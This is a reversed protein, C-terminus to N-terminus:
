IYDDERLLSALAVQYFHHCVRALFYGFAVRSHPSALVALCFSAIIHLRLRIVWRTVHESAEREWWIAWSDKMIYFWYKLVHADAPILAIMMLSDRRRFSEEIIRASCTFRASFPTSLNAHRIFLGLTINLRLWRWCELKDALAWTFSIGTFPSFYRCHFLAFNAIFRSYYAAYLLAKFASSASIGTSDPSAWYCHAYAGVADLWRLMLMWYECRWRMLSSNIWYWCYEQRCPVFTYSHHSADALRYTTDLGIIMMLTMANRPARWATSAATADSACLTHRWLRSCPMHADGRTCAYRRELIYETQLPSFEHLSYIFAPAM